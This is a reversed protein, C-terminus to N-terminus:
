GPRIGGPDPHHLQSRGQGFEESAGHGVVEVPDRSEFSRGGNGQYVYRFTVCGPQAGPCYYGEFRIKAYRGDSTRVAYVRPRPQLLHSVFSYRYWDGLPEAISDSRAAVTGVYGEEPVDAVEDFPTEGLDLVGGMGPFGEGGNVIVRFRRFALDWEFPQPDEVVEGRAFSFFRWREPDRADVTHLLPGVLRGHAPRAETSPPFTVPEPRSLSLAVFAVAAVAIGGGILRIGM